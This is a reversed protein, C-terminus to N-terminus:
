PGSRRKDGQRLAHAQLNIQVSVSDLNRGHATQHQQTMGLGFTVRGRPLVLVATEVVAAPEVSAGDAAPNAAM